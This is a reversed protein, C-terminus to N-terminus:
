NSQDEEENSEEGNMLFANPNEMTALAKNFNKQMEIMQTTFAARLGENM